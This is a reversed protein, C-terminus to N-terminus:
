VDIYPKIDRPIDKFQSEVTLMDVPIQFPLLASPEVKDTIIEILAQDQEGMHVLTNTAIKRIEFFVILKTVKVSVVIPKDGM